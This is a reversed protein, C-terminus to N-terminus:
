RRLPIFRAHLNTRELLFLPFSTGRGDGSFGTLGQMMVSVPLDIDDLDLHFVDSYTNDALTSSYNSSNPILPQAPFRLPTVILTVLKWSGVV